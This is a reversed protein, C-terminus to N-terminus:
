YDQLRLGLFHRLHDSVAPQKTEYGQSETTHVSKSPIRSRDPIDPFLTFLM